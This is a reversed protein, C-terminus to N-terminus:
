STRRDLLTQAAEALSHGIPDGARDVYRGGKRERALGILAGWDTFLYVKDPCCPARLFDVGEVGPVPEAGKRRSM